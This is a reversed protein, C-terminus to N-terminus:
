TCECQNHVMRSDLELVKKIMEFPHKKLMDFKILSNKEDKTTKTDHNFLGKGSQTKKEVKLKNIFLREQKRYYKQPTKSLNLPMIWWSNMQIYLILYPQLYIKELYHVSQNGNPWWVHNLSLSSEVQRPSCPHRAGWYSHPFLLSAMELLGHLSPPPPKQFSGSRSQPFRM